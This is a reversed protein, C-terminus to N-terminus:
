FLGPLWYECKHEKADVKEENVMCVGEKEFLNEQENYERKCQLCTECREMEKPVSRNTM